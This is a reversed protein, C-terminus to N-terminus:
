LDEGTVASAVESADFDPYETTSVDENYDFDQMIFFFWNYRIISSSGMKIPTRLVIITTSM